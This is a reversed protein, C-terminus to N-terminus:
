INNIYTPYFTDSLFFFSEKQHAMKGRFNKFIYVRAKEERIKRIKKIRCKELDEQIEDTCLYKGNLHFLCSFM